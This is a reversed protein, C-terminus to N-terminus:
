FEPSTLTFFVFQKEGAGEDGPIVTTEKEDSGIDVIPLGSTRSKKVGKGRGERRAEQGARHRKSSSPRSDPSMVEEAEAGERPPRETEAADKRLTELFSEKM